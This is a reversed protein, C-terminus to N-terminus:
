VRITLDAVTDGGPLACDGPIEQDGVFQVFRARDLFLLNNARAYDEPIRYVKKVMIKGGAFQYCAGVKANAKNLVPLHSYDGGVMCNNIRM